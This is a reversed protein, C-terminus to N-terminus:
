HRTLLFMVLGGVLFSLVCLIATVLTNLSLAGAPVAVKPAQIPPM